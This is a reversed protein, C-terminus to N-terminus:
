VMARVFGASVVDEMRRQEDDTLLRPPTFVVTACWEANITVVYRTSTADVELTTQIMLM